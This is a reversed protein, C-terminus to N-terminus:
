CNLSDGCTLIQLTRLLRSNFSPRGHYIQYPQKEPSQAERTPNEEVIEKSIPRSVSYKPQMAGCQDSRQLASRLLPGLRVHIRADRVHAWYQLFRRKSSGCFIETLVYKAIQAKGHM